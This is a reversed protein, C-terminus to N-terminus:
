NKERWIDELRDTEFVTNKNKVFSFFVKFFFCGLPLNGHPYVKETSFFQSGKRELGM